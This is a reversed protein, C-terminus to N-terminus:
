LGGGVRGVATLAGVPARQCGGRASGSQCGQRGMGQHGPGRPEARVLGLLADGAVGDLPPPACDAALHAAAAGEGGGGKGLAAAGPGGHQGGRPRPAASKACARRGSRCADGM